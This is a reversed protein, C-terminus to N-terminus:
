VTLRKLTCPRLTANNSACPMYAFAQTTALCESEQTLHTEQCIFWQSFLIERILLYTHQSSKHALQTFNWTVRFVRNIANSLNIRMVMLLGLLQRGIPPKAIISDPQLIRVLIITLLRMPDVPKHCLSKKTHWSIRLSTNDVMNVSTLCIITDLIQSPSRMFFVRGIRSIAIDPSPSHSGFILFM